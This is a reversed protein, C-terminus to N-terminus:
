NDSAPFLLQREVTAVFDVRFDGCITKVEVQKQLNTGPRLYKSLAWAFCDELPSEYPPDYMSSWFSSASPNM